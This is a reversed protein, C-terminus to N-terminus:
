PRVAWSRLEESEVDWGDGTFRRDNRRTKLYEDFWKHFAAAQARTNGNSTNASTSGLLVMDILSHHQDEGLFYADRKIVQLVAFRVEGSGIRFLQHNRRAENLVDRFKEDVAYSALAELAAENLSEFDIKKRLHQVVLEATIRKLLEYPVAIVKPTPLQGAEIAYWELSSMHLVTTLATTLEETMVNKFEAWAARIKQDEEHLTALVADKYAAEVKQQLAKTAENKDYPHEVLYRKRATAWLREELIKVAPNGFLVSIAGM